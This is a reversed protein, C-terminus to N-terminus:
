IGDDLLTDGDHAAFELSRVEAAKFYRNLRDEWEAEVGFARRAFGVDRIARALEDHQDPSYLRVPDGIAITNPPVFFGEPIVTGGHVLAGVAISAGAHLVAGQLVTVGTAIYCCREVVCGLLTSHPGVFAHDGIVVPHDVEGAATARLVANECVIACDAIEVRSGEADIVAGYMVRARPGIQVNGVVAATPAIFASSNVIPEFGRHRIRM